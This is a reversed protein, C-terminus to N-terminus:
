AEALKGSFWKPFGGSDVATGALHRGGKKPLFVTRADDLIRMTDPEYRVFSHGCAEAVTL